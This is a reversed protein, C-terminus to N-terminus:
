SVVVLNVLCVVDGDTDFAPDFLRRWLRIGPAFCLDIRWFFALWHASLANNNESSVPLMREFLRRLFLFLIVVTVLHLTLNGLRLWVLKSGFLAPSWEFTTYSVWRLNHVLEAFPLRERKLGDFFMIDDFVLPNDFFSGYLLAVPLCLALLSFLIKM